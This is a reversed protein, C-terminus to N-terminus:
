EYTYALLRTKLKHKSYASKRGFSESARTASPVPAYGAEGGKKFKRTRSPM